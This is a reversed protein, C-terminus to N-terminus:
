ADWLKTLTWRNQLLGASNLQAIEFAQSEGLTVFGVLIVHAPNFGSPALM